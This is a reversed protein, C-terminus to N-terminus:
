ALGMDRLRRELRAEVEDHDVLRGEEAQALGADVQAAFWGEFELLRDVAEQLLQDADRGTSVALRRLEVEQEPRLQISM